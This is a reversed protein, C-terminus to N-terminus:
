PQSPVPKLDLGKPFDCGVVSFPLLATSFKIASKVNPVRGVCHYAAASTPQSWQATNIATSSNGTSCILLVGM